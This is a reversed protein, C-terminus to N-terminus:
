ETRFKSHQVEGRARDNQEMELGLVEVSYLGQDRVIEYEARRQSNRVYVVGPDGSGHGFKLPGTVKEHNYIPADNEDVLIEDGAYYTLTTQTFDNEGAYFEDRHIVYPSSDNRQALEEDYNWEEDNAAFVNSQVPQGDVLVEGTDNDETRPVLEGDPPTERLKEFAEADIVVPRHERAEREERIRDVGEQIAQVEDMEKIEEVKLDLDLNDPLDHTEMEKKSRRRGLFYGVGLGAGFAVGGVAGPISWRNALVRAFKENM